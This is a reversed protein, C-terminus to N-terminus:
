SNVKIEPGSLDLVNQPSPAGHHLNWSTKTRHPSAQSGGITHSVITEWTWFGCATIRNLVSVPRAGLEGAPVRLRGKFSALKVRGPGCIWVPTPGGWDFGLQCM